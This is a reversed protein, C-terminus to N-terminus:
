RYHKIFKNMQELVEEKSYIYRGDKGWLNAHITHLDYHGEPIPNQGLEKHPFFKKVIDKTAVPETFFNVLKTNSTIIRQIDCWLNSLDYYQYSADTNIMELCNNNLLAYIVNKKLGNGFLGPLRVIFCEQFHEKCFDEFALRHSGYPHNEMSHCDFTEDKGQMIPYVDITSILILRKANLTLLVDQLEKIRLQDKEPGKNAQWKVASVGACVLEDFTEGVMERFNKSNYLCDFRNQQHLNGGVFGTYGILARKM